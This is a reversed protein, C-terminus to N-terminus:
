RPVDKKGRKAPAAMRPDEDEPDPGRALALAELKQEVAKGVFLKPDKIMRVDCFDAFAAQAERVAKHLAQYQAIEDASLPRTLIAGSDIKRLESYTHEPVETKEQAGDAFQLLICSNRNSIGTIVVPRVRDNPGEVKSRSFGYRDSATGDALLNILCGKIELKATLRRLKDRVKTRCTKLDPARVDDDLLPSSAYFSGEETVHFSVENGEITEDKLKAM